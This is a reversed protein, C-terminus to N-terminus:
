YDNDRIVSPSPSGGVVGGLALTVKHFYPTTLTYSTVLTGTTANRFEFVYTPTARIAPHTIFTSYAKYSLSSAESGNANGKINVSIPVGGQSLNIFRVSYVSDSYLFPAQEKITLSDVTPYTGSLFLSYFAGNSVNLSSTYYPIAPVAPATATAPKGAVYLSIVQQGSNVPLTQYANVSITQMIGNFTLTGGGVIANTINIAGSSTYVNDSKKCAFLCVAIGIALITYNLKKMKKNNITTILLKSYNTKKM